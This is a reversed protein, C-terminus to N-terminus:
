GPLKQDQEHGTEIAAAAFIDLVFLMVCTVIISLFRWKVILTEQHKGTATRLTFAACLLVCVIWVKM